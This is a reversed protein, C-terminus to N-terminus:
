ISVLCSSEVTPGITGTQGRLIFGNSCISEIEVAFYFGFCSCRWLVLYAGSSLLFDNRIISPEIDNIVNLVVGESALCFVFYEDVIPKFLSPLSNQLIRALIVIDISHALRWVTLSGDYYM